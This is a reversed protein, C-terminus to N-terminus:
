EGRGWLSSPGAGPPRASGPLSRAPAGSGAAPRGSWDRADALGPSITAGSRAPSANRGNPGARRPVAPGAGWLPAPPHAGVGDGVASQELFRQVHRVEAGEADLNLFRSRGLDAVGAEEADQHPLDHSPVFVVEPEEPRVLRLGVPKICRILDGLLRPQ